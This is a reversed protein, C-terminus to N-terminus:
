KFQMTIKLDKLEAHYFVFGLKGDFDNPLIFEVKQYDFPVYEKAILYPVNLPWVVQDRRNVTIKILRDLSFDSAEANLIELIIAKGRLTPSLQESFCGGADVKGNLTVTNGNAIVQVGGWDQWGRFNLNIDPPINKNVPKYIMILAAIIAGLAGIVAVIIQICERSSKKKQQPPIPPIQPPNIIVIQNNEQKQGEDM